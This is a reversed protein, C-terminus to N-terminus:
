QPEETLVDLGNTFAPIDGAGAPRLADASLAARVDAAARALAVLAADDAPPAGTLADLVADRDVPSRAVAADALAEAPAAEPLGLRDALDRRLARRLLAAARDRAAARQYLQGTAVVLQAAPVVVPLPELVPRGLRRSRWLVLVAAAVLLQVGVLRGRRPVLDLLRVQADAGTPGEADLVAVRQQADGGGSEPLFLVSALVANDEDDLAANTLAGAGGLAIVRGQGLEEVVLWSGGSVPFCGDPEYGVADPVEVSGVDDFAAAACSPRLRRPIAVGIPADRVLPTLQSYPDAVVLTGGDRIWARLSEADDDSHHDVLLLAVDHDRPADVLDVRAGLRRLSEVLARTGWPETSRPDYPETGVDSPRTLAAVVLVGAVVFVLPLARGARRLRSGSPAATAGPLGVATGPPTM